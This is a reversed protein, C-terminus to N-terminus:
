DDSLEKLLREREDARIAARKASEYDYTDNSSFPTLLNDLGDLFIVWGIGCLSLPLVLIHPALLLLVIGIVVTGFCLTLWAIGALAGGVILALGIAIQVIGKLFNDM